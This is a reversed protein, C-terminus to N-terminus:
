LKSKYIEKRHGIKVVIVLLIDDQVSYLIRYNGQRLRYREQGSLKECGSPRPNISLSQIKKVIRQLDKKPIKELEKIASAKIKIRYKEM